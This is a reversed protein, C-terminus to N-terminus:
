NLYTKILEVAAPQVMKEWTTQGKKIQARIQTATIDELFNVPIVPFHGDQKFLRSVHSSGTYVKNFPPLNDICHQVWQDDKDIDEISSILYKSPSIQVANLVAIIIKQREAVTLPNQPEREKNASGLAILVNENQAIIDQIDKLHGLHFPQFRGIFLSYPPTTM